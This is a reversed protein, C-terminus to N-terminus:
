TGGTEPDPHLPRPALGGDARPHAPATGGRSAGPDTSAPCCGGCVRLVDVQRWDAAKATGTHGHTKTHGQPGGSARTLNGEGLIAPPKRQTAVASAAVGHAQQVTGRLAPSQPAMGQHRYM